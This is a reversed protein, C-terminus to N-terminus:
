QMKTHSIVRVNKANAFVMRPMKPPLKLADYYGNIIDNPDASMDAYLTVDNFQVKIRLELRNAAAVMEVAIDQITDGASGELTLTLM